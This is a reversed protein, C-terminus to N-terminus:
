SACRAALGAVHGDLPIAAPLIKELDLMEAATLKANRAPSDAARLNEKAPQVKVADEPVIEAVRDVVLGIPFIKHGREAEVVVIFYRESNEPPEEAIGSSTRARLDVLPIESGWARSLRNLMNNGQLPASFEIIDEVALIKLAFRLRGLGFVLYQATANVEAGKKASRGDVSVM